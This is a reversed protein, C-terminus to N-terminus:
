TLGNGALRNGDCVASGSFELRKAVAEDAGARVQFKSGRIDRIGRICNQPPFPKRRGDTLCVNKDAGAPGPGGVCAIQGGRAPSHRRWSAM